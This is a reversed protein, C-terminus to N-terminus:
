TYTEGILGHSDSGKFPSLWFIDLHNAHFKVSIHLGVEALHFNVTPHQSLFAQHKGEIISITGNNSHLERVGKASLYIKDGVQLTSTKADMKFHIVKSGGYQLPNTIVVGISEMWTVGERHADSIFKANILFENCTMLNFATNNQGHVSYCLHQHDHLKISFHPDGGGSATYPVLYM